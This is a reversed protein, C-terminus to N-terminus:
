KKEEAPANPLPLLDKPDFTWKHSALPINEKKPDTKTAEIAEHKKMKSIPLSDIRRILSENVWDAGKVVPKFM